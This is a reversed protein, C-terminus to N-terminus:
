INVSSSEIRRLADQFISVDKDNPSHKLFSTVSEIASKTIKRLGTQTLQRDIEGPVSLLLHSMKGSEGSTKFAEPHQTAVAFVGQLRMWCLASNKILDASSSTLAGYGNGTVDVPM